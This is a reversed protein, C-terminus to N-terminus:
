EENLKNDLNNLDKEYKDYNNIIITKLYTIYNYLPKKDWNNLIEQIKKINEKGGLKEIEVTNETVDELLKNYDKKPCEIICFANVLYQHKEKGEKWYSTVKTKTIVEKNIIIDNPSHSLNIAQFIYNDNTESIKKIFFPHARIWNEKKLLTQFTNSDLYNDINKGSIINYKSINNIIFEKSFSTKIKVVQYTNGNKLLATKM